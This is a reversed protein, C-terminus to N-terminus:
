TLWKLLGKVYELMYYALWCLPLCILWEAISIFIEDALVLWDLNKCPKGEYFFLEDKCCHLECYTLYNYFKGLTDDFYFESLM